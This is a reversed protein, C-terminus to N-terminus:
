KSKKIKFKSKAVPPFNYSIKEAYQDEIILNIIAEAERKVKLYVYKKAGICNSHRVKEAGRRLRKGKLNSYFWRV